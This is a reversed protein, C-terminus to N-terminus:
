LAKTISILSLSVLLHTIIITHLQIGAINNRGRAVTPSTGNCAQKFNQNTNILICFRRQGKTEKHNM